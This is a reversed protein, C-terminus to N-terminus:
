ARPPLPGLCIHPMQGRNSEGAEPIQSLIQTGPHPRKSKKRPPGMDEDAAAM